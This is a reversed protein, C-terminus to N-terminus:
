RWITLCQVRVGANELNSDKHALEVTDTKPVTKKNCVTADPILIRFFNQSSIYINNPFYRQLLFPTSLM